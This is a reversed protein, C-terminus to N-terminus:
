SGRPSVALRVPHVETRDFAYKITRRTASYGQEAFFKFAADQNLNTVDFPDVVQDLTQDLDDM